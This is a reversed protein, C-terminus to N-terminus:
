SENRSVIKETKVLKKNQLSFLKVESYLFPETPSVMSALINSTEIIFSLDQERFRSIFQRVQSQKHNDSFVLTTLVYKWWLYM